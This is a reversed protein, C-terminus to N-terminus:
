NNNKYLKEFLMRLGHTIRPGPRLVIDPEIDNYIRNNRVANIKQWGFRKKVMEVPKEETMYALFICDPNRKIVEEASFISYPRITDKAINIGGALTILEDIFSANGATTLPDFWIEIFVKLRQDQPIRQTQRTILDIENNMAAILAQAQTDKKTLHGIEKISTLLEQINKPDAVYVPLGYRKLSEIATNQELGTCFIHDPKLSLIKEINPSSFDGVSEKNKARPPYNCFASVGVIEDDLGLAFLIETTSPALSIYRSNQAAFLHDCNAMFLCIIFITKKM